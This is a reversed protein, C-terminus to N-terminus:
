AWISRVEMHPLKARNKWKAQNERIEFVENISTQSTGGNVINAAEKSDTFIIVNNPFNTLAKMMASQIGHNIAIIETDKAPVNGKVSFKAPSVKMGTQYILYGGGANGELTLAEDTYLYIM